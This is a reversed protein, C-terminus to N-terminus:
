FAPLLKLTLNRYFTPSLELILNRYFTLSVKLMLNKHGSIRVSAPFTAWITRNLIGKKHLSIPKPFMFFVTCVWNLRRMIHRRILTLATQECFVHTEKCFVTFTWVFM